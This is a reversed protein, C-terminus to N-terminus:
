PSVVPGVPMVILEVVPKTLPQVGVTAPDKGTVMTTESPWAVVLWDKVTM